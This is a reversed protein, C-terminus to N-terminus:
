DFGSGISINSLKVTQSEKGIQTDKEGVFCKKNQDEITEDEMGEEDPFSAASYSYQWPACFELEQDSDQLAHGHEGHGVQAAHGDFRRREVVPTSTAEAQLFNDRNDRYM